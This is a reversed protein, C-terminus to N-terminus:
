SIIKKYIQINSNSEYNFLAWKFSNTSHFVFVFPYSAEIFKSHLWSFITLPRNVYLTTYKGKRKKSSIADFLLHFSSNKNSLLSRSHSMFFLILFIYELFTKSHLNKAFFFFNDLICISFSNCTDDWSKSSSEM